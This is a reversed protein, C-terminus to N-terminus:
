GFIRTLFKRARASEMKFYVVYAATCLAVLLPTTVAVATGPSGLRTGFLADSLAFCIAGAAAVVGIIFLALMVGQPRIVLDVARRNGDERLTGRVVPLLHQEYKIVRAIEFFNPELKGQYPTEIKFVHGSRYIDAEEVNEALRKRVEELSLTTHITWREYPFFFLNM